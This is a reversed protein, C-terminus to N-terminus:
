AFFFTIGATERVVCSSSGKFVCLCFYDHFFMAKMGQAVQMELCTSKTVKYM